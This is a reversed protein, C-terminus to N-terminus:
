DESLDLDKSTLIEQYSDDGGFVIEVYDCYNDANKIWDLFRARGNNANDSTDWGEKSGDPAIFFSTQSNTLGGIIPSIIQSGFPQKMVLDDNCEIDFIEVAKERAQIVEKKRWGTVVITHHKIYGM